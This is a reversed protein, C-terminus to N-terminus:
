ATAVAEEGVICELTHAALAAATIRSLGALVDRGSSCLLLPLNLRALANLAAGAGSVTSTRPPAAEDM